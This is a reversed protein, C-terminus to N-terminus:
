KSSIITTSTESKMIPKLPVLRKYFLLILLVALLLCATQLITVYRYGTHKFILTSSLSAIVPAFSGCLSFVGQMNGQKRPGLIESFLTPSTTEVFPFAVGFIVIFCFFYIFIPVRTTEACWAYSPYCGGAHTTEVGDPLFNLPGSYFSWPYMFLQYLLFLSLGFLMQIRKDIKGIRTTGQAVNLSFSVASSAALIMGNYFVSDSDKWDYMVTTLPSSMVEVITAIINVIMFLYICIFAAPRDFKPIVIDDNEKEEKTLVGAYNEKFFFYVSLSALLCIVVMLYAVSSYMNVHVGVIHIGDEGLPTFASSIVPGFSFGLAFGAVGFSIARMRDDPTSAMAAYARLASVNGVGLGTLLRACLMLWKVNSSFSALLGYWLQGLAAILFGAIVPWKVSMTKQNWYGYIPNAITCGISCAAVIWGLFDFDATKDLKVGYKIELWLLWGGREFLAVNVHLVGFNACRRYIEANAVPKDTQYGITM